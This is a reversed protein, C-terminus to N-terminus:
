CIMDGMARPNDHIGKTIAYGTRSRSTLPSSLGMLLKEKCRLMILWRQYRSEMDLKMGDINVDIMMAMRSVIAQLCRYQAVKWSKGAGYTEAILADYEEDALACTDAGGEVEIDREARPMDASAQWAAWRDAQDVRSLSAFGTREGDIQRRAANQLMTFNDM